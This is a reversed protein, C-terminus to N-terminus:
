WGIGNLLHNANGDWLDGFERWLWYEGKNIGVTNIENAGDHIQNNNIHHDDHSSHNHDEPGRVMSNKEGETERYKNLYGKLHDLM